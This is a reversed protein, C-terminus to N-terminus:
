LIGRMAGALARTACEYSFGAIHQRAKEGMARLQTNNSLAQNLRKELADVDGAPFLWGTEGDIVLDPGSGVHSSAIVPKGLNMAENLALGWTEGRGFSPLVVLDGAAYTRPMQSQNQFPAFFITKGEREAAAARLSSELNGNGVFLLVPATASSDSPELRLFANLLDLPRKKEEFKGAFLVVPAGDPIGLEKKWEAAARHADEAGSQFRDNDVCHPVIHIQRDIVGSRLFYDRNAQGTALFTGFRQFVIRRLFRSVGPKWGRAPFLEHSDGRFLFPVNRLRQSLILGLHTAYNYGFLLVADPKWAAIEKDAGPNDLGRFHHTGPKQSRNPLFCHSYGDLLPIDWTFSTGFTIDRTEKVGFDWLYFVKIEM